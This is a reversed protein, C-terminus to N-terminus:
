LYVLNRSVAKLYLMKYKRLGRGTLAFESKLTFKNGHNTEQVAGQMTTSHLPWAVSRREGPGNVRSLELVSLASFSLYARTEFM